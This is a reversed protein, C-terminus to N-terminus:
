FPNLGEKVDQIRADILGKLTLDSTLYVEGFPAAEDFYYVDRLLPNDGEDLYIYMFSDTTWFELGFFPRTFVKGGELLMVRTELQAEFQTEYIGQEMVTCRAGALFLYEKLVKPFPNGNNYLQELQTIEAPTNGRCVFGDRTPNDRLEKLYIIDM